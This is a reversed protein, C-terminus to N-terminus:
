GEIYLYLELYHIVRADDPHDPSNRRISFFGWTQKTDPDTDVNRSAFIRVHVHRDQAMSGPEFVQGVAEETAGEIKELYEASLGHAALIEGVWPRVMDEADQVPVLLLEGLMVWESGPSNTIPEDTTEVKDALHSYTYRYAAQPEM